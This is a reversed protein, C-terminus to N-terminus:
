SQSRIETPVQGLNRKVFKSFNSPDTFGLEAGIRAFPRDTHTLLRRVELTLRDDLIDRATQGSAQQCARDLTRTSYGLQHALSVVTPREYLSTEIIQRFDLYAQPLRTGTPAADPLEIALRMLLSCLMSQLLSRHISTNEFRMQEAELDDIWANLDQRLRADLQWRTPAASGPYWAPATPDAHHSEAPWVVMRAEFDEDPLFRQVQGPHIRLMTGPEFAVPEFDVMHTGSGHTCLLLQHFGVRQRTAIERSAMREVLTSRRLVEVPLGTSGQPAFEIEIPREDSHAVVTNM